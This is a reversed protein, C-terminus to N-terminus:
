SVAAVWLCVFDAAPSQASRAPGPGGGAGMEGRGLGGAGDGAATAVPGVPDGEAVGVRVGVGVLVGVGARVGVGVRVGVGGGVFDGVGGGGGGPVSTGEVVWTVSAGDAVPAGGYVPVKMSVAEPPGTANVIVTGCPRVTLGDLPESVFPWLRVTVTVASGVLGGGRM